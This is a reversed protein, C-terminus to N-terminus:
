HVHPVRQHKRCHSLGLGSVLVRGSSVRGGALCCLRTARLAHGAERQAIRQVQQHTFRCGRRTRLGM